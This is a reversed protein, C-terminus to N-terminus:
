PEKRYSNIITGDARENVVVDPWPDDGSGLSAELVDLRRYIADLLAQVDPDIAM